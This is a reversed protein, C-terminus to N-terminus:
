RLTQLTATLEGTLRARQEHLYFHDGDFWSCAFPGDTQEGWAQLEAPDVHTDQRGAMASLGCTLRPGDRYLYTEIMTMDARLAPLALERLERHEFVERPIGQYREAVRHVFEDDPLPHLREEIRRRQLAPSGSAFLHAPEALDRAKLARALEFAVIAGLSHGFLCYPRDVVPEMERALAHVLADLTRFPTESLRNERGPPQVALVEVLGPDLAKSWAHYTSAGGGAYPLCVLRLPAGRSPAPVIFWSPARGRDRITTRHLPM